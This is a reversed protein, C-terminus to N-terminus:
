DTFSGINLEDLMKLVDAALNSFCVEDCNLGDCEPLYSCGDGKCGGACIRLAEVVKELEPMM